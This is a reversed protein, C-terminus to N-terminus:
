RGDGSAPISCRYAPRLMVVRVHVDAGSDSWRREWPLATLWTLTTLRTLGPPVPEAGHGRRGRPPGRGNRRGRAACPRCAAAGDRLDDAHHRRSRGARREPGRPHPAAGVAAVRHGGGGTGGARLRLEGAA